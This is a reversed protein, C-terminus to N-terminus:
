ESGNYQLCEIVTSVGSSVGCDGLSEETGVLVDLVSLLVLLLPEVSGIPDLITSVSSPPTVEVLPVDESPVLLESDFWTSSTSSTLFGFNKKMGAFLNPELVVRAILSSSLPIFM